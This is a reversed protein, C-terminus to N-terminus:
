KGRKIRTILEGLSQRAEKLQAISSEIQEKSLRPIAIPASCTDALVRIARDFAEVRITFSDNKKGGGRHHRGAPFFADLIPKVRAYPRAIRHTDNLLRAAEDVIARQEPELDNRDALFIIDRIRTFTQIPIGVQKVAEGLRMGSKNLVMAERCWDIPSKGDPVSIRPGPHPGVAVAVAAAPAPKTSYVVAKSGKRTRRFLCNSAILNLNALASVAAHVTGPTIDPLIECAEEATLGSPADNIAALVRARYSQEADKQTQPKLKFADKRSMEAHITGSAIAAEFIDPQLQTLEYITTWSPPLKNRHKAHLVGSKAITMLIGATTWSFPLTAAMERLSEGHEDHAAILQEGVRVINDIYSENAKGAERWFGAICSIHASLSMVNHRISVVVNESM